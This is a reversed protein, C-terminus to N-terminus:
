PIKTGRGPSGAPAASPLPKKGPKGIGLAQRCAPDLSDPQSKLCDVLRGGGSEVGACLKEADGSCAEIVRAAAPHKGKFADALATKASACGASLDSPHSDLCKIIRGGGPKVDKCLKDLEAQCADLLTKLTPLKKELGQQAAAQAQACTASLESGHKRLCQIIRGEGPEVDSCFKQIDAQCPHSSSTEAAFTTGSPVILALSLTAIWLLLSRTVM